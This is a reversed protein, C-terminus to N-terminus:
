NTTTIKRVARVRHKTSREFNGDHRDISEFDATSWDELMRNDYSGIYKKETRSGFWYPYIRVANDYGSTGSKFYDYDDDGLYITKTARAFGNNYIKYQNESDQYNGTDDM